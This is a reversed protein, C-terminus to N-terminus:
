LVVVGLGWEDKWGVGVVRRADVRRRIATWGVGLGWEWRWRDKEVVVM